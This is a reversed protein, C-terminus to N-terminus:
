ARVRAGVRDGGAGRGGGGVGGGGVGAAGAGPRAAAQAALHEVITGGGLARGTANWEEVLQCREASSVIELRGIAVDPAAVAGELLRVLRSGLAEVSGRDFLDSAYEIVGSIGAPSGDAGREEAVSVSLDFKARGVSVEELRASLGSLEVEVPANNQLALM